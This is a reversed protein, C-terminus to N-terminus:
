IHSSGTVMRNDDAYIIFVDRKMVNSRGREREIYQQLQM